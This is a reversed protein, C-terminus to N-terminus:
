LQGQVEQQKRAAASKKKLKKKQSKSLEAADQVHMLHLQLRTDPRRYDAHLRGLM